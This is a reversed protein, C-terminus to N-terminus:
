DLGGAFGEPVYHFFLSMSRHGAPLAPRHHPLQTGDFLLGDGPAQLAEVVEVAGGPRPVEVRLPWRSTATPAYDILLSISIPCQDRDQHRVLVAGETYAGLYVYSPKLPQGAVEAVLATLAQHLVRAVPENHMCFRNRGLTDDFAAYGEAVLARYHARLADVTVPHVMGALSACRDHQFTQAAHRRARTWADRRADLDRLDELVGADLLRGVAADDLGTPVAGGPTLAALVRHDAGDLSLAMPAPRDPHSVTAWVRDAACPNVRRAGRAVDRVRGASPADVEYATPAGPHADLRLSPNVRLVERPGAYPAADRMPCTFAVPASVQSPPVLLGIEELRSWARDDLALDVGRGESVGRLVTFVDGEDRRVTTTRLAGGRTPAMLTLAVLEDDAGRSRVIEARPNLTLESM